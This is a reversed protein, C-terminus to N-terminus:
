RESLALLPERLAMPAVAKRHLFLGLGASTRRPAKQEQETRASPEM